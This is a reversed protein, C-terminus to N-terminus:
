LPSFWQAKVLESKFKRVTVKSNRVTTKWTIGGPCIHRNRTSTTHQWTSTDAVPQDRACPLWVSHTQTMAIPPLLLQRCRRHAPLCGMVLVCFAHVSTKLQTTLLLYKICHSIGACATLVALPVLSTSTCPNVFYSQLICIARQYGRLTKSCFPSLM